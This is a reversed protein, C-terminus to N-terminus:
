KLFKKITRYIAKLNNRRRIYKMNYQSYENYIPNILEINFFAYIVLNVRHKPLFTFKLTIFKLYHNVVESVTEEPLNLKQAVEKIHNQFQIDDQVQAKFIELVKEKSYKKSASNYIRYLKLALSVKAM